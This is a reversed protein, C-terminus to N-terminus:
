DEDEGHAVFYEGNWLDGQPSFPRTDAKLGSQHLIMVHISLEGQLM